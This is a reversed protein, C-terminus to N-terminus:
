KNYKATAKKVKALKKSVRQNTTKSVLNGIGELVNEFYFDGNAIVALPSCTGFLSEDVKYGLLYNFQEQIASILKGIEEIKQDDTLDQGFEVGNFFDIVNEYRKVIGPDSPNFKFEGLKESDKDVVEITSAGTDVELKLIEAM